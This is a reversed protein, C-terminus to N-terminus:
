CVTEAKCHSSGTKCVVVDCELELDNVGTAGTFAFSVYEMGFYDDTPNDTRIMGSVAQSPCTNDLIPFSIDIARDHVHCTTVLFELSSITPQSYVKFFNM